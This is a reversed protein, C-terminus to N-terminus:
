TPWAFIGEAEALTDNVGGHLVGRHCDMVVLKTVDHDKPLIAPYKEGYAMESNRFRGKCRVIGEADVFLGLNKEWDGYRKDSTIYRQIELIWLKRTNDVDGVTIIGEYDNSGNVTVESGRVKAKLNDIFRMVLATVRLLKNYNSFNRVDIVTSLNGNTELKTLLTFECNPKTEILADKGPEFKEPSPPWTHEPLRLWAPGQFWKENGELSSAYAGRSAIDAPNDVGPTFRWERPLSCCKIKNVRNDVFQKLDKTTNIWYLANLSDTWYYKKGIVLSGELSEKVRFMLKALIEAATLELRPISIGKVPAVRSKGTVLTSLKVGSETTYVAYVCAGLAKTSADAFGHLDINYIIEKGEAFMYRQVAISNTKDLDLLWRKWIRTHEQNLEDDWNTKLLCLEQFLLKAKLTIPSILGLPDFMKAATILVSRKTPELSNGCGVVGGFKLTILDLDTNWNLGLVKQEVPRELEEFKGFSLKTYSEDERRVGGLPVGNSNVDCSLLIEALEKSNSNWKRLNFNGEGYIQKANLCVSTAEEVTNVSTSLDDCYFSNLMLKVLEPNLQEYKKIHHQLTANMIFPSCCLGFVVACFRYCVIQPDEDNIDKVWLFRLFDRQSEDVAISLFAKEIDAILGIKKGRFRLLIAYLQETLSPGTHLTDNLCVGNSKSSADYVIRIKTTLAEERIVVQSPLYHVEGVEVPSTLDVKEIIGKELQENIISDCEQVVDPTKKLRKLTSNLRNVSNEFNDPLVPSNEKFPLVVSYKGDTFSVNKEFSEAVTEKDRIGITEFDWFKNLQSDLDESTCEVKLLYTETSQGNIQKDRITAGPGYLVWGLSTNMATPGKQYEDTRVEGTFFKISEDCGILIDVDKGADVDPDESIQLGDLHPFAKQTMAIEHRQVPSCIYPVVLTSILEPQKNEEPKFTDQVVLQAVDLTESKGVSKGFTKLCVHEEAVAPLKLYNRLRETIYSRHSGSDFIIRAIIKRGPNAPNYVEAQATQLLISPKSEVFCNTTEERHTGSETEQSKMPKTQQRGKQCLSIHHRGNCNYCLNKSVCNFALHGKRLCIFCRGEKRLISMRATRNTIVKCDNTKHRGKCFTCQVTGSQTENVLASATPIWKSAKKKISLATSGDYGALNKCRERAELEVKLIDLLIALNWEENGIKRSIEVQLDSPLKQQLVPILLAGYQASNIGLSQLGRINAEISDYLKRLGHVDTSDSCSPLKMLAEMHSNIIIQKQGYRAKLISIAELYNSMVVPLGTLAEAAEGKLLGVLYHFKNITAVDDNEHVASSFGDWFQQWEKPNGSFERLKIPQLKVQARNNRKSATSSKTSTGDNDEALIYDIEIVTEKM